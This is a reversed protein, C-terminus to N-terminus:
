IRVVVKGKISYTLAAMALLLIALVLFPFELSFADALAGLTIATVFGSINLVASFLGTIEGDQVRPTIDTILGNVAPRLLAHILGLVFCTAFLMLPNSSAQTISILAIAALVFGITILNVKGWRDSLEALYFSFLYPISIVAFLLSIEILGFNLSLAYLPILFAIIGTIAKMFFGLLLTSYGVIGLKKLDQLEKVFVGDKVIVEEVGRGFPKGSDSIKSIIFSALIPFPILLLMLWHVNKTTLGFFIVAPIIFAPAIVFALKQFTIYLGFTASTEGKPSKKRIFGEAMVWFLSSFGHVARAVLLIVLSFGSSVFALCFYLMGIVPYSLISAATYKIKNVKDALDGVPVALFAGVLFFIGYFFGTLSYSGVANHIFISFFPDIIGWAIYYVFLGFILIKVNKPIKKLDRHVSTYLFPINHHM